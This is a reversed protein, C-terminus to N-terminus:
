VLGFRWCPFSKYGQCVGGGTSLDEEALAVFHSLILCKVANRRTSSQYRRIQGFHGLLPKQVLKQGNRVVKERSDDLGAPISLYHNTEILHYNRGQNGRPRLSLYSLRYLM